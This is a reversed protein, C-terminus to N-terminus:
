WGAVPPRPHIARPRSLRPVRTSPRLSPPPEPAARWGDGDTDAHAFLEDVEENTMKEGLTTLVSRMHELKLCGTGDTDFLQFCMQIETDFEEEAKSCERRWWIAAFEMFDIFGDCNTDLAAVMKDTEAQTPNHGM